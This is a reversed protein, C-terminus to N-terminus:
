GQAEGARAATIERTIGALTSAKGLENNIEDLQSQASKCQGELNSLATQAANKEANAAAVFKKAATIEQSLAVRAREVFADFEAPLGHLTM